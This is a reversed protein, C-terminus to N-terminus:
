RLTNQGWIKWTHLWLWFSFDKTLVVGRSLLFSLLCCFHQLCCIGVVWPDCLSCGYILAPKLIVPWLWASLAHKCCSLTCDRGAVQVSSTQPPNVAQQKKYGLREGKAQKYHLSRTGLSAIPSVKVWGALGDWWLLAATRCCAKM